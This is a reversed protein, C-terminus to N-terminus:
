PELPYLARYVNFYSEGAPADSVPADPSAVAASEAAPPRALVSLRELSYLNGTEGIRSERYSKESKAEVAESKGDSGRYVYGWLLSALSHKKGGSPIFVNMAETVELGEPLFANLRTKFTEADCFTETDIAAIEGGAALGLSLPSAIELRPLPNFGRTYLIPIDARIFAMSFIELLGLHPHFVASGHKAFSFIIRFTDPDKTTAAVMKQDDGFTTAAVKKENQVVRINKSCIGCPNNCNKMCPLTIEGTRSREFENEYYHPQIGSEICSWPLNASCNGGALIEDVLAKHRLLLEEWVDRKMYETWSDLRAGLRYAEELIAGAREDGRSVMGEIVSLLPDQVGVKHGRPKLRAKLYCLKKEAEERGMQAAAEFPTHPKPVFTGVNINFRMGTQKAITEIFVAIEEEEPQSSPGSPGTLPLGIMFYFKAQRWGRRKAERLIAVLDEGSVQKNIVTQWFDLPTEVAFTLGSKRVVSIKELIDLSFGSVKLSPLQFSVRRSRFTTNLSEILGDLHTYDGSSLSSLTIERYGGKSVIAEAEAEVLAANKQRMPRYWYGAHCFRCGNPCGRMIEISGHHHVVKMSPVPFIAPGNKGSSFEADVARIARGKGSAWVSKHELLKKLLADRKAGGRKMAALIGALEFFGGEAEGIWFADIFAMYPIPNSVCPGGMIVLPDSAARESARLPIGSIDLMSLLGTFLLEYGVTFMLLDVAKLSIGSDLGYLPLERERLLKEFDPAPAFARDCSIGEMANLRNYIIRLAQNSMGIEYLDPFAILTKLAAGEAKARLCLRGFEGGTYRAPKEVELLSPGLDALPDIYRKM